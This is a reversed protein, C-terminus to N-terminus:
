CMKKIGDLLVIGIILFICDHRGPKLDDLAIYMIKIFHCAPVVSGAKLSALNFQFKDLRLRGRGINKSSLKPKRHYPLFVYLFLSSFHGNFLDPLIEATHPHLFPHHFKRHGTGGHLQRCLRQATLRAANGLGKGKRKWQPYDSGPPLRRLYWFQCHWIYLVNQLLPM